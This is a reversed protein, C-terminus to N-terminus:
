RRERRTRFHMLSHMLRNSVCPLAFCIAIRFVYILRHSTTWPSCPTLPNGAITSRRGSEAPVHHPSTNPNPYKLLMRPIRPQINWFCEPNPSSIESANPTPYEPSSIRSANPTPYEPSSIESANPTSYESSSIKSANLTPYEPSSIKLPMRSQTNPAPYELPM